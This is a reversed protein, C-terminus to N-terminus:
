HQEFMLVFPAPPPHSLQLLGLCRMMKMQTGECPDSTCNIVAAWVLPGAVILVLAIIM